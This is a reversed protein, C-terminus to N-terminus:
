IKRTLSAHIKLAGLDVNDRSHKQPLIVYRRFTWGQTHADGRLIKQGTEKLTNDM